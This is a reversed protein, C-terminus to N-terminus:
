KKKELLLRCVLDRRSQLESTHEESRRVATSDFQRCAQLVATNAHFHPVVARANGIFLLRPDELGKVPEPIGAFHCFPSPKAQGDGLAKDFQVASLQTKITLCSLSATEIEKERNGDRDLFCGAAFRFSRRSGEPWPSNQHNLIIAGGGMENVGLKSRSAVM